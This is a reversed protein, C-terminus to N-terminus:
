LGSKLSPSKDPYGLIERDRPSLRALLVALEAKREEEKQFARDDALCKAWFSRLWANTEPDLPRLVTPLDDIPVSKHHLALQYLVAKLVVGQRYALEMAYKDITPNGSPQLDKPFGNM